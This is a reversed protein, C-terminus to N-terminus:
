GNRWRRELRVPKSIRRTRQSGSILMPELAHRCNLLRRASTSCNVSIKALWPRPWSPAHPSSGRLRRKLILLIHTLNVSPTKSSIESTGGPQLHDVVQDPHPGVCPGAALCVVPCSRWKRSTQIWETSDYWGQEDLPACNRRSSGQPIKM